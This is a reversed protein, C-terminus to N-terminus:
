RWEKCRAQTQKDFTDWAQYCGPCLGEKAAKSQRPARLSWGCSTCAYRRWTKDPKFGFIHWLQVCETCHRVQSTSPFRHLPKVCRCLLCAAADKPIIREDIRDLGDRPAMKILFPRSM